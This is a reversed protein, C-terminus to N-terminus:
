AKEGGGVAPDLEEVLSSFSLFVLRADRISRRIDEDKDDLRLVRVCALDGVKRSSDSGGTPGSECERM